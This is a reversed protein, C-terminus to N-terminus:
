ASTSDIVLGADALQALLSALAANGGRSGTVERNPQGNNGIYVPRVANGPNVLPVDAQFDNGAITVGYSSAGLFNIGNGKTALRHFRNGAILCGQTGAYLGVGADGTSTSATVAFFNGMIVGGLPRVNVWNNGLTAADGHWNGIYTFGIAYVINTADMDVAGAKNDSLQEFVCSQITWAEGPNYIPHSSTGAFECREILVGNSYQTGRGIIARVATRFACNRVTVVIATELNLLCACDDATGPTGDFSCSDFDLHASDSGYTASHGTKILTGTYSADSYRVRLNRFTIGQCSKLSIATATGTAACILEPRDTASGYASGAADSGVGVLQINRSDDLSLSTFKYKGRPFVVTGGEMGSGKAANIAAQIAATDDTTGNGVAGFASSKVNIVAGGDDRITGEIVAM